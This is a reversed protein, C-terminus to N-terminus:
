VWPNDGTRRRNDNLESAGCPQCAPHVHVIEIPSGCDVSHKLSGTQSLNLDQSTAYRKRGQLAAQELHDCTVRLQTVQQSQQTFRLHRHLSHDAQLLQPENAGNSRLRLLM